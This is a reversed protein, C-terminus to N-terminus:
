EIANLLQLMLRFSLSPNALQNVTGALYVDKGPCYFAFAGSLGSHGILEPAPRLPSFIRPWRFRAIGVGYELPFFIRNWAYLEPLAEKRFLRGEFFARLFTMSEEATSVIGGDPGFSSMARPVRLPDRRFRITAPTEDSPDEYLYTRSLELPELVRRQLVEKFPAEEIAEAIRGLLQFNTDSYLAKGKAGPAFAPSMSKAAAIAEEPPWARDQGSTLQQQLSKGGPPKQQFYDPLGSTHSLLHAVTLSPAYDFGRYTHLGDLTAQPLFASIPDSLRLRGEERLGLVIATVYLKTTSAIYYPTDASLEGYALRKRLGSGATPGSEVAAVAGFVDKRHEVFRRFTRELIDTM